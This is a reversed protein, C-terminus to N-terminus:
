ENTKFFYNILCLLAPAIRGNCSFVATILISGPGSAKSRIGKRNVKWDYMPRATASGLPFLFSSFIVGFAM